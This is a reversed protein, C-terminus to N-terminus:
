GVAGVPEVDPRRLALSRTAETLVDFLDLLEPDTAAVAARQAAVTGADGRAVPGTLAEEPGQLAWNEVTTRVLPALLDRAESPELGAGAAVREAAHEVTVLFNSAISAAAHYAARGDDSIAFPRMGLSVALRRAVSEAGPSSGAIACGTGAFSGGAGSFSQLPHLGFTEAGRHAAPELTSLPTAGSTHGVFSAAGAVTEAAERIAGDPVCLLIVEGAPVTGRGVPGDVEHGAGRLAETLATGLRGAGVVGLLLPASPRDSPIQSATM